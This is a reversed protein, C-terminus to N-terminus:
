ANRKNRIEQIVLRRRCIEWTVMSVVGNDEVEVDEDGVADWCGDDGEEAEELADM